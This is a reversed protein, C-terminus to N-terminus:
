LRCPMVIGYWSDDGVSRIVIPDLAGQLDIRLDTTGAAKGAEVIQYANTVIYLAAGEYKAEITEKGKGSDPNEAVITVTCEDFHFAAFGSREMTDNMRGVRSCASTIDANAVIMTREKTKPMVHQYPPPKVELMKAAITVSGCRLFVHGANFALAADTASASLGQLARAHERLIVAGEPIKVKGIDMTCMSMRNWDLAIARTMDDVSLLLLGRMSMRTDDTTCSFWTRELLQAFPVPGVAAFVDPMSPLTPFDTAKLGVVEYEQEQKGSTVLAYHRDDGEITIKDGKMGKCVELFRKSAVTLAGDKTVSAPVEAFASLNLDTAAVTVTGKSARLLVNGLIPMTSKHDAVSAAVALVELFPTKEITFKM